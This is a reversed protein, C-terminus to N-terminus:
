FFDKRAILHGAEPESAYASSRARVFSHAQSRSLSRQFSFLLNRRWLDFISPSNGLKEAKRLQTGIQESKSGKKIPVAPVSL